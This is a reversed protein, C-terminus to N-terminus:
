NNFLKFWVEGGASCKLPDKSDIGIGSAAEFEQIATCTARGAVGDVVGMYFGKASLIIQLVYVLTGASLFSVFAKAAYRKCVNTFLKNSVSFKTGYEKNIYDKWVALCAARTKTGYDGDIVLLEGFASRILNGFHDNLYIQGEAVNANYGGAYFAPRGFGNVRNRGGTYKYSYSHLAVSGGNRSGSGDTNGEVAEFTKNDANVHTVIGVHGVRGISNIYFYVIDGVKPVAFFRGKSVFYNKATPTYGTMTAAKPMYLLEESEQIDYGCSEFAVADVFYQCWFSGNKGANVEPEFKTYNNFGANATFSELDANSTKETYGLYYLARAAFAEATCKM